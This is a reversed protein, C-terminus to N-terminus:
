GRRIPPVRGDANLRLVKGNYSGLDGARAPVDGDDFGVYLRSDPGFRLAAVPRASAAVGDLLVVREIFQQEIERVRALCFGAETASVVYVWRTRAFDPDLAIALLGGGSRSTMEGVPLAPASWSGAPEVVRIHGAREAIFVRGDPAAAIDTPDILGTAREHINLRVATSATADHGDDAADTAASRAASAVTRVVLVQLPLSRGSEVGNVSAASLELTHTGAALGPLRGSCDYASSSAPTCSVPSLASRSGGDIYLFFQYTAPDESANALQM